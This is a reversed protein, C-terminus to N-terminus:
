KWEEIAGTELDVLLPLSVDIPGLQNKRIVVEILRKWDEPNHKAWGGYQKADARPLMAPDPFYSWPRYVGLILKSTNKIASSGFLWQMRPRKNGPEAEDMKDERLQSLALHAVNDRKAARQAKVCFKHVAIREDAGEWDILQIYDYVVSVVGSGLARYARIMEDPTPVVDDIIVLRTLWSADLADLRAMEDKKLRREVIKSLPLNTLQSVLKQAELLAADELGFKVVLQDEAVNQAFHRVLGNCVTSKFGGTPGFLVSLKSLPCGGPILEQLGWPLPLGAVRDVPNEYADVLRDREDQVLEMASRVSRASGSLRLDDLSTTLGSIVDSASEGRQLRELQTGLELALLRTSSADKIVGAIHPAVDPVPVNVILDTLGSMGGVAELNGSKNLDEAVQFVAGETNSVKGLASWVLQWKWDFFNAASVGSTETLSPDLLALSVLDREAREVVESYGITM